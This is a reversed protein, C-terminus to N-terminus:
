ASGGSAQSIAVDQGATEIIALEAARVLTGPPPSPRAPFVRLHGQVPAPTGDALRTVAREALYADFQAATMAAPKKFTLVDIDVSLVGGVGQIVAYLDSLNVSQALGMRDFSLADLVAAQAAALVAKADLDPDTRVTAQVRVPIPVFNAIRLRVNTDRVSALSAAIGRLDQAGLLEGQQAAITLFIAQDLGDWIWRAGAKAVEGTARVQDEFDRISVIRGFTRVTRPANQRADAAEEPEAGGTAPVPNTVSKLGRPRDLATTLAGAAVRGALGTGTRYTASINGQGTPVRAGTKGDGFQVIATGDDGIRTVLVRDTPGRGYLSPVEHWRIGDVQVQLSSVLPVPGEGPIYTLPKKKLAVRQFERSADGNGLVEARVTEGHSARAVNGLLVASAADLAPPVDTQLSIVLHAFTGPAANSPEIATPCQVVGLVTSGRADTLIVRRGVDIEGPHIVVGSTFAGQEIHRGVEVGAGVADQTRRGPLYVNTSAMTAPYGWQWFTIAPGALHYVRILRRDTAAVAPAVRLRTVSTTVGGLSDQTQDVAVVTVQRKQGADATDAVLLRDGANIGDIRGDLCLLSTGAVVPTTEAATQPYTYSTTAQSWKVGGLSSPDTALSFAQAPVDHGFLRLIRTLRSASTAGSWTTGAVPQTWGVTAADDDLRVARVQKEEVGTPQSDNWIVVRDGPHLSAAIAPGAVRDLVAETQGAALPGPGAPAGFVRLRNLRADASFGQLTEFTQPLDPVPAAAAAAGTTSAPAPSPAAAAAEPTKTGQGPVTQVRLGAPLALAQGSELSFALWTLAAAGPALQYGILDALRRVSERRTATRLFAENAYREQYFTLVDAVAAWLDLVTIAFDDDERTSLGALTVDTPIANLMSERFSAYTGIRYAVASLEPRNEVALPTLPAAPDCCDCTSLTTDTM